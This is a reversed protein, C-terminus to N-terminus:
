ETKEGTRLQEISNSLEDSGASAAGEGVRGALVANLVVGFLVVISAFYFFVVLLLIAGVVGYASYSAIGAYFRFLTQLVTWGIAAFLAGPYAERVTIDRGSVVNGGPLVYYLPLLTISLALISVISLVWTLVDVGAIVVDFPVFSIAVGIVITIAIGVAVGFLAVLGDRVESVIGDPPPNGYARSFAIDLGRFLRLAGWVLVVVGVVTAGGAATTNETLIDKILDQGGPSLSTGAMEVVQNALQQGGFVTAVVLALLLLPILSVFAYYALSAALFTIQKESVEGAFTRVLTLPSAM